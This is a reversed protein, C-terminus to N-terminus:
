ADEPEEGDTVDMPDEIQGAIAELADTVTLLGVVGDEGTVLALEQSEAQFRDIAESVPLNAHMTMPPHAIDELTDEGSRLAELDRFAEPLYVIGRFDELSDGVLPYRVHPHDSMRDVNEELSVETSLPVVHEADVMIDEVPILDIELANLVEERREEPLEGESLLSGMERRLDSRGEIGEEGEETWSRTMEVGLLSITLKAVRDGVKIVPELLRTWYYHVPACYHAVQKAREVGLYTPAQEALVLHFVNMIALAVVVSTTAVAAQGFGLLELVPAVLVALAPEAVVGLGVSCVTIGLQCGTLYIELRDTMEWARQLGPTDQFESEPFQRVRTLAFETAVFFGNGFLLALGGLLRVATMPNIAGTSM